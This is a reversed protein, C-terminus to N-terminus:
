KAAAEHAEARAQFWSRLQDLIQELEDESPANELDHPKGPLIRWKDGQRVLIASDLDPPQGAQILVIAFQGVIKEDLVESSRFREIAGERQLMQPMIEAFFTKEPHEAVLEVAEAVQQQALLESFSAAVASPSDPEAARLTTISILALLLIFPLPRM